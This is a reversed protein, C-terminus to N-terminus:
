EENGEAREEDPATMIRNFEGYDLWIIQCALCNDVVVNGPGGYPHTDMARGCRPCQLSRQLEDRNPPSPPQTGSPRRLNEVAFAFASQEVLTGRCNPCYLLRVSDWAAAVLPTKCVPCATDSLENLVRIGDRNADPFYFSGCYDCVFYDRERELRMPAGCNECNM